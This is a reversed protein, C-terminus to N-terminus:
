KLAYILIKYQEYYDQMNFKNCTDKFLVYPGGTEIQSKIMFTFLDRASVTAYILDYDWEMEIYKKEFEDGYCKNLELVKKFKPDFLTWEKNDRVRKMFLDPIWLGYFLNRARIEDSGTNCKLQLFLKISAHWPEIYIAM